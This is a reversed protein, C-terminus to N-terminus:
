SVCRRASMNKEYWKEKRDNELLTFFHREYQEPSDYFLSGSSYGLEGTAIGVKFLLDESKSGVRYDYRQGSVANRIYSGVDGSIYLEISVQKKILTNDSSPKYVFRKIKCYGKDMKKLENLSDKDRKAFSVFNDNNSPHFQDDEYYM